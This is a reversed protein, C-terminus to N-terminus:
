RNGIVKSERALDTYCAVSKPFARMPDRWNRRMGTPRYQLRSVAGLVKTRAECSVNRTGNVVRSVTATSVGGAEGRGKSDIEPRGNRYARQDDNRYPELFFVSKVCSEERRAQFVQHESKARPGSAGAERAIAGPPHVPCRYVRAAIPYNFKGDGSM